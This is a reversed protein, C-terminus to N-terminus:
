HVLLSHNQGNKIKIQFFHQIISNKNEKNTRPNNTQNSSHSGLLLTRFMHKPKLISAFNRNTLLRVCMKWNKLITKIVKIADENSKLFYKNIKIIKNYM